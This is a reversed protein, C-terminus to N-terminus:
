ARPQGPQERTEQHLLAQMMGRVFTTEDLNVSHDLDPYWRETVDGGLRRLVPGVQRVQEKPILPDLEGWGLFVPTGALSGTQSRPTDDPGILAGSLGVIGGFRRPYRAAYELVLCAGQSFGLLMTKEPPIRSGALLALLSDLRALASSLWPENTPLPDFFRNPYWTNGAAEPALYAFGPMSLPDVLTLIDAATANRGHVMLMAAQARELPEGAARVPLGAHMDQDRLEQNAM